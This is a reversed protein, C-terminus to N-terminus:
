VKIDIFQGSESNIRSGKVVLSLLNKIEEFSIVQSLREEFTVEVKSKSSPIYEDVIERPESTRKIPVENTSQSNSIDTLDVQVKELDPKLFNTIYLNINTNLNAITM